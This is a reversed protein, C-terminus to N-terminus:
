TTPLHCSDSGVPCVCYSYGLGPGVTMQTQWRGMIDSIVTEPNISGVGVAPTGTADWVHLELDITVDPVMVPEGKENKLQGHVTITSSPLPNQIRGEIDWLRGPLAVKKTDKTVRRSSSRAIPADGWELDYVRWNITPILKTTVKQIVYYRENLSAPLRADTIKVIQGVHWGDMHHRENGVTCHGRLIGGSTSKDARAAVALKTDANISEPADLFAQPYSPSPASAESGFTVWGTGNLKVAGGNYAFGLSGNVYFQHMDRSTDFNYGLNRCGISSIGDPNDNDINAPAFELPDPVDEPQEWWRPLAVYHLRLAQDLWYQVNFDSLAAMQDIVSGLTTRDPPQPNAVSGVYADVSDTYTYVFSGVDITQTPLWANMFM